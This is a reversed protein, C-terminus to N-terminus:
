ERPITLQRTSSNRKTLHDATIEGVRSIQSVDGEVPQGGNGTLRVDMLEGKVDEKLTVGNGANDDIHCYWVGLKSHARAEIGVGNRSIICEKVEAQADEHVLIGIPNRMIRCEHIHEFRDNNTAYVDIGIGANDRIYSSSVVIHSETDLRVAASRTHHIEARGVSVYEKKQPRHETCMLGVSTHFIECDLIFCETEGTALVGIEGGSIKCDYLSVAGGAIVQTAGNDFIECNRFSGHCQPQVLHVGATGNQRIKCWRFDVGKNEVEEKTYAGSIGYQGNSHIDCGIVNVTYVQVDSCLIGERRNEMMTCDLVDVDKCQDLFLGSLSGSFVCKNITINSGSVRLARQGGRFTCEDIAVDDAQVDVLTALLVTTELDLGWVVTQPSQLALCITGLEGVAGLYVPEGSGDGTIELSKDVVVNEPYHGPPLILRTGPEAAAIVANISSGPKVRVQMPM